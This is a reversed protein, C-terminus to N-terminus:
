QLLDVRLLMAGTESSLNARGKTMIKNKLAKAVREVTMSCTIRVSLLPRAVETFLAITGVLASLTTV